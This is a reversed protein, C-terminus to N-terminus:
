LDGVSERTVPKRYSLIPDTLGMQSGSRLRDPWDVQAPECLGRHPLQQRYHYGDDAHFPARADGFGFTVYRWRAHDEQKLFNVIPRMDVAGPQLPLFTAGLGVGLSFVALVLFIKPRIKRFRQRLLIVIMGFFPLLTLSAWLAFRDYTLWEWGNGFFLRPLPTTDGLGLLFLV